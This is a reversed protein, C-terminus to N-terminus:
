FIKSQSLSEIGKQSYSRDLTWEKRGEGRGKRGDRDGGVTTKM